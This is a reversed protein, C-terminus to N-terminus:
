NIVHRIIGYTDRVAITVRQANVCGCMEIALVFTIRHLCVLYAPLYTPLYTPLDGARARPIMAHLGHQVDTKTM